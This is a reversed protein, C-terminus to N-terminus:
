TYNILPTHNKQRKISRLSTTNCHYTFNRFHSIHMHLRYHIDHSIVSSRRLLFYKVVPSDTEFLTSLAKVEVNCCASPTRLAVKGNIYFSYRSVATCCGSVAKFIAVFDKGYVAGAEISQLLLIDQVDM